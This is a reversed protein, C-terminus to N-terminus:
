RDVHRIFRLTSNSSRCFIHTMGLFSNLGSALRPKWSHRFRWSSPMWARHVLGLIFWVLFVAAILLLWQQLFIAVTLCNLTEHTDNASGDPGLSLLSKWFVFVLNWLMYIAIKSFFFPCLHFLCTLLWCLKDACLLHLILPVACPCDYVEDQWAWIWAEHPFVVLELM